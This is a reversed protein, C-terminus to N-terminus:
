HLCLMGNSVEHSKKGPPTVTRWLNEEAAEFHSQQMCLCGDLVLHKSDSPPGSKVEEEGQAGRERHTKWNDKQGGFDQSGGAMPSTAKTAPKPAICIYTSANVEQQMTWASSGQSSPTLKEGGTSPRSQHQSTSLSQGSIPQPQALPSADGGVAPGRLMVETGKFQRPTWKSRVDGPAALTFSNQLRATAAKSVKNTGKRVLIGPFDDTEGSAQFLADSAGEEANDLYVESEDSVKSRSMSLLKEKSLFLKDLSSKAWCSPFEGKGKTATTDAISCPPQKHGTSLSNDSERSDNHRTSLPNDSERSDNCASPQKRGSPVYGSFQTSDDNLLKDKKLAPDHSLKQQSPVDQGLNLDDSSKDNKIPYFSPIVGTTKILCVPYPPEGVSGSAFKSLLCDLDQEKTKKAPSIADHDQQHKRKLSSKGITKGNSSESSQSQAFDMEFYVPESKIATDDIKKQCWLESRTHRVSVFEEKEESDDMPESKVASALEREEEGLSDDMPETKIAVDGLESSDGTLEQMREVSRKEKLPKKTRTHTISGVPTQLQEGTEPIDSPSVKTPSEWLVQWEFAQNVGVVHDDEPEQKVYFSDDAMSTDADGTQNIFDDDQEEKININQDAMSIDSGQM